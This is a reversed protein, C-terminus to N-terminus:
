QKTKLAYARQQQAPTMDKFNMKLLEEDSIEKDPVAALAPSSSETKPEEAQLRAMQASFEKVVDENFLTQIFKVMENMHEFLFMRFADYAASYIFDKLGSKDFIEGDDSPKGYSLEAVVRVFRLMALIQGESAMTEEPHELQDQMEDFDNKLQRAESRNEIMWDTFERPTLHFYLKTSREQGSFNKYKLPTMYVNDM